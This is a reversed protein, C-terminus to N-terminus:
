KPEKYQSAQESDSYKKTTPDIVIGLTALLVLVANVFGLVWVNIGESWQWETIGSQNMGVTVMQAIILLQSVFGIVWQRNKFRVKWNIKM